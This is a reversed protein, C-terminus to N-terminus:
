TTRSTIRRSGSASRPTAIFFIGRIRPWQTQSQSKGVALRGDNLQKHDSKELISSERSRLILLDIDERQFGAEILLVITSLSTTFTANAVIQSDKEVAQALEEQSCLFLYCILEARKHLM